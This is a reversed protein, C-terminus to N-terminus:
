LKIRWSNQKKLNSGMRKIAIRKEKDLKTFQYKKM